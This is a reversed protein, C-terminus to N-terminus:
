FNGPNPNNALALLLNLNLNSTATYNAVLETCRSIFNGANPITMPGPVGDSSVTLVTNYGSANNRAVDTFSHTASFLWNQLQITPTMVGNVKAGTAQPRGDGGGALPGSGDVILTTDNPITANLGLFWVKETRFVFDFVNVLQTAAVTIHSGLADIAPQGGGIANWSSLLSACQYYSVALLNAAPRVRFNVFQVTNPDTIPSAM